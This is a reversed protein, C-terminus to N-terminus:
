VFYADNLHLIERERAEVHINNNNNEFIVFCMGKPVVSQRSKQSFAFYLWYYALSHM